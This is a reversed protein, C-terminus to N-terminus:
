LELMELFATVMQPDFQIGSLRRLEAAAEKPSWACKYPRESTLADYVDIVAFARALLPIAEGKLRQPYGEGNWWEHHHLILLATEPQSPLRQSLNFGIQAHTQMVEREQLTLAGPKLLVVDPLSLKGIDHLFAGEHLAGARQADLGLAGAMRQALSAVRETHGRTEFDRTELALGVAHLAGMRAQVM